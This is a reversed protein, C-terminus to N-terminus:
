RRKKLLKEFLFAVVAFILIWTNEALFDLVSGTTKFLFSVKTGILGPLISGIKSWPSQFRRM